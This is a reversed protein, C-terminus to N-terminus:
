LINNNKINNNLKLIETKLEKLLRQSNESMMTLRLDISRLIWFKYHNLRAENHFFFGLKFALLLLGIELALTKFFGHTFMALTFCSAAVILLLVNIVKQFKTRTGGIIGIKREMLKKHFEIESRAHELENEKEHIRDELDKLRRDIM